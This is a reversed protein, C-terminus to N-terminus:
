RIIALVAAEKMLIVDEGRLKIETGAYREILVQDGVQLESPYFNGNNDFRGRGAAIVIGELQKEQAIAPIVLTGSDSMEDETCRRVIIQDRLPYIATAQRRKSEPQSQALTSDLAVQFSGRVGVGM